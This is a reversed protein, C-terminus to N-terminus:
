RPNREYELIISIFVGLICDRIFNMMLDVCLMGFMVYIAKLKLGFM